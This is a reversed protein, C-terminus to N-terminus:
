ASREVMPIDNERERTGPPLRDVDAHELDDFDLAYSLHVWFRDWMAPRVGARYGDTRVAFAKNLWKTAVDAPVVAFFMTDGDTADISLLAKGAAALQEELERTAQAFSRMLRDYLFAHEEEDLDPYECSALSSFVSRATAPLADLVLVEDDIWHDIIETTYKDEISYIYGAEALATVVGYYTRTEAAAKECGYFGIEEITTPPEDVFRRAQAITESDGGSLDRALAIVPDESRSTM